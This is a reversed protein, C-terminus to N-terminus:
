LFAAETVDRHTAYRQQAMQKMDTLPTHFITQEQLTSIQVEGVCGLSGIGPYAFIVPVQWVNAATDLQPQDATFRDPLRDSLFLNTAAQAQLATVQPATDIAM